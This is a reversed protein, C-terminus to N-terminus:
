ECNIINFEAFSTGDCPASRWARGTLELELLLLTACRPVSGLLLTVCRSRADEDLLLTACRSSERKETGTLVKMTGSNVKEIGTSADPYMTRQFHLFILEFMIELQLLRGIHTTLLFWQHDAICLCYLGPSCFNGLNTIDTVEPLSCFCPPSRFLLFCLGLLKAKLVDSRLPLDDRQTKLVMM